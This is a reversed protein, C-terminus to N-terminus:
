RLRQGFKISGFNLLLSLEVQSLVNGNSTRQSRYDNSYDYSHPPDCRTQDNTYGREQTTTYDYESVVELITSPEIYTDSSGEYTSSDDHYEPSPEDKYPLSYGRPESKYTENVEEYIENNIADVRDTPFPDSRRVRPPPPPPLPRRPELYHYKLM